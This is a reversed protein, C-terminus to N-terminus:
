AFGEGINNVHQFADMDGWRVEQWARSPYFGAADMVATAKAKEEQTAQGLLGRAPSSCGWKFRLTKALGHRRRILMSSLM